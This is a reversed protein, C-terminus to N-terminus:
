REAAGRRPRLHRVLRRVRREEAAARPEGGGAPAHARHVRPLLALAPGPHRPHAPHASGSARRRLGRHPPRRDGGRGLGRRPPSLPRPPARRDRVPLDGRQHRLRAVRRGGCLDGRRDGTRDVRSLNMQVSQLAVAGPLDAKPVLTPLISNLAPAGLANGIGIVLVCLVLLTEDPHSSTALVALVISFVLQQVQCVLLLRRRDLVDALVGGINSLLLLPGLQAFFLIAVYTESHTLTYGYAGLLVNQM